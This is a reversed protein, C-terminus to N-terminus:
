PLPYTISVHKVESSCNWCVPVTAGAVSIPFYFESGPFPASFQDQIGNRGIEHGLPRPPAVIQPFFVALPYKIIVQLLAPTPVGLYLTIM